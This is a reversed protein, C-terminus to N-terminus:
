IHLKKASKQVGRGAMSDLLDDVSQAPVGALRRLDPDPLVYRGLWDRAKEDGLKAQDIAKEIIAEWDQTRDM